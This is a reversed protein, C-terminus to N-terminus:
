THDVDLRRLVGFQNLAARLDLAALAFTAGGNARLDGAPAACRLASYDVDSISSCGLVLWRVPDPATSVLQQV